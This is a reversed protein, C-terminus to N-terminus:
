QHHPSNTYYWAAAETRNSVKLKEFINKLHFRVTNGSVTLTKAIDPNTLGEAVLCLVDMERPSLNDTRSVDNRRASVLLRQAARPFVLRGQAVQRIAEITQTPSETKLAFGDAGLELASQLTEGDSFATLVLVHVPIERKRIEELVKLGHYPMHMDLVVIDVDHQMLLSLLEEGKQTVAVVDIDDIQDLLGKLGQLVLAHDDALITRIKESM